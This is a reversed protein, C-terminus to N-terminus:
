GDLRRSYLTYGRMPAAYVASLNRSNNSAYMLAHIARTFGLQHASNQVQAVLVAGLGAYRRAPLVAVTKVIVTNVPVGRQAQALDPLGFAYGVPQHDVEAMWTLEPKIYAKLKCYQQLFDAEALPTYLFNRTFSQASVTYIALLEEQFRSPDFMRLHVGEQHLRTLTRPIRADPQALDSTLASSYEALPAFGAASWQLPYTPPNEPELAFPPESGPATVFRYRRWTNGDMPGVARTCGHSRLVSLAHALLTQAAVDNSAAYHGIVGLCEQEMQPVHQWWLSARAAPGNVDFALCHQDVQQAALSDSDFGRYLPTGSYPVLATSEYCNDITFVNM